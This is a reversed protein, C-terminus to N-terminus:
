AGCCKKYKKGSGCPCPANRGVKGAPGDEAQALGAGGAAAAAASAPAKSASATRAAPVPDRGDIRRTTAQPQLNPRPYVFKFVFEALADDIRQEMEGFLEFGERQYEIKPDRQAYGRLSISERLSDMTHLHGKWQADLIQLQLDRVIDDFSPYSALEAYVEEKLERGEERKAEVVENLRELLAHGFADADAHRSGDDTRFPPEEISYAIGFQAELAHAIEVLDDDEPDGRQPWTRALLNVVFGEICAEVETRRAEDDASMAILRRAYFAQRQKNMVDDYDLLHKRMDFNRGEVKKQAGEIVRSLMRNEIAEGEEVGVRDWWQKVRDAEFIRLLDDELSLFFQSSGPDGQRGARGRLQNDIRRSEHRETGLIHLGGAALVEKREAHCQAEFQAHIAEFDEHNRDYGCRALAMQEPNGGLLIDTGRGAMNTSITIAGKRGAQAVIESESEHKKANLVTHKIGVKKLKTSLMESTEISITGVLVPQGAEHREKLEDIVANFKEKKTKFVVDAGDVRVLPRHTPILSVDLNYIKAFEEAETDATGTMGSLKEYMRFYNQFTISALTQNESRVTIGEKAEVAQHLGDSWRRGPMLRGTHEDVIVVEKKGDEGVRVVYDVDLRKLAHAMLAQQMAHLVPLMGPDFLNDVRLMKEIKRTGEETFTASHAKEDVWYDGTEEIGKSAEAATGAQLSPILRNAITYIQTNQESPGSIILPTRAEDILISDVEDVIAYHLERQVCSKLSFKMNDRLYDFGLENNTCYTVDAGYAAQRQADTLGHVISGVELGLFRHLQGMWEADRKALFDNVTVVHVGRGTLGNLYSPLTAVLTKGEGTKMEAIRGQHLMVGGIMQVDYHRQGLTRKAAERVTAFAEVLLDDLPEGQELRERFAVTRGQLDADSLRSVSTELSNIRDILPFLRKIARDNSTGFIKGLTRQM